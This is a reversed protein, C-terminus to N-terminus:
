LAALLPIREMTVGAGVLSATAGAALPLHAIIVQPSCGSVQLAMREINLRVRDSHNRLLSRVADVDGAAASALLTQLEATRSPSVPLSATGCLPHACATEICYAHLSTLTGDEVVPARHYTTPICTFCEGCNLEGFPASVAAVPAGPRAGLTAGALAVGIACLAMLRGPPAVRWIRASTM